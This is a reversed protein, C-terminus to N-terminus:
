IARGIATVTWAGGDGPEAEFDPFGGLRILELKAAEFLVELEDPFFYRVIHTEETEEIMRDERLRRLRFHISLLQREADIETRTRRVIKGDECAVSKEREGPPSLMVAPGHWVDCVVLGGPALHGRATRLAALVDDNSPQYGLVNFMITVADFVEEGTFTRIDGEAFRLVAADLSAGADKARARELMPLSRDVGMVRYGREAMPVAHNGTGCGLDLISGVPSRAYALFVRELMDCELAYDKDRYLDDYAGSYIAGFPDATAETM